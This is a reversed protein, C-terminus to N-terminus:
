VWEEPLAGLDLAHDSIGEEEFFCGVIDLPLTVGSRDDTVYVDMVSDEWGQPREDKVVVTLTVYRAM